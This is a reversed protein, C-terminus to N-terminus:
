GARPPRGGAARGPGWGRDSASLGGWVGFKEGTAEALSLCPLRAPCALCGAKAQGLEASGEEAFWKDPDDECPTRRRLGGAPRAGLVPLTVATM